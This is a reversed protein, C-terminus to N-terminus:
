SGETLEIEIVVRKQAAQLLDDANFSGDTNRRVGFRSAWTPREALFANLGQAVADTNAITHATGMRHQGRLVGQVPAGGMLNRWWTRERLSTAMLKNGLQVYNVPTSILRGSKRGTVTILMTSSSMFSHLPSCLIASVFKNFWM